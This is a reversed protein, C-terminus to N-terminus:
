HAVTSHLAKLAERRRKNWRRETYIFEQEEPGHNDYSGLYPGMVFTQPEVRLDNDFAKIFRTQEPTTAFVHVPAAAPYKGGVFARIFSNTIDAGAYGAAMVALALACTNNNECKEGADIHKQTVVLQTIPETIQPM